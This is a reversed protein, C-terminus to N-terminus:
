VEVVWGTDRECVVPPVPDELQGAPVVDENDLVVGVPHEPKAHAGEQIPRCHAQGGEHDLLVTAARREADPEDFPGLLKSPWGVGGVDGEGVQRNVEGIAGDGRDASM